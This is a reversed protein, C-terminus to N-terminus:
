IGVLFGCILPKIKIPILLIFLTKKKNISVVPDIGPYPYFHLIRLLFCYNLPSLFNFGSTAM